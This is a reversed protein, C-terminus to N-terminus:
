QWELPSPCIEGPIVLSALRRGGPPVPTPVTPVVVRAYGGSLRAVVHWQTINGCQDEGDDNPAQHLQVLDGAADIGYLWPESGVVGTLNPPLSGSDHRWDDHDRIDPYRPDDWIRYHLHEDVAEGPGGWRVTILTAASTVRRLLPLEEVLRTGSTSWGVHRFTRVPGLHEVAYLYGSPGAFVTRFQSWDITAAVRVPAGFATGPGNQRRSWLAGKDTVTYLVLTTADRAAFLHLHNRWDGADVEVAADIAPESECGAVEVLHGTAAVVAFLAKQQACQEAARAPQAPQAAVVGFGTLLGVLGVLSAHRRSRNRGSWHPM